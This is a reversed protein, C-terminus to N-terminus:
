VGCSKHQKYKLMPFLCTSRSQYLCRVQVTALLTHSSALSLPSSTACVHRHVITRQHCAVRHGRGSGVIAAGRGACSLLGPRKPHAAGREHGRPGSGGLWLHSYVARVCVCACACACAHMRWPVRSTAGAVQVTPTLRLVVRVTRHYEEVVAALPVEAPLLSPFKSMRNLQPGLLPRILLIAEDHAWFRDHQRGSWFATSFFALWPTNLQPMVCKGWKKITKRNKNFSRMHTVDFYHAGLENAQDRLAALGDPGLVGIRGKRAKASAAHRHQTDRTTHSGVCFTM